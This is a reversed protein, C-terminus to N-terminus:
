VKFYKLFPEMKKWLEYPTKDCDKYSIRNLIYCASYLTKGWINKRLGSSALMVNVMDLLTRNKRKAVGNYQSSYPPTIEHIIGRTECFASIELSM